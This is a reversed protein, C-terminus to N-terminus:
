KGSNKGAADLWDRVHRALIEPDTKLVIHDCLPQPVKLSEMATRARSWLRKKAADSEALVLDTVIEQLRNLLIGDRHDYYRSILKQQYATYDPM